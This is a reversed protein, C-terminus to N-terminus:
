TSATVNLIIVHQRTYHHNSMCVNFPRDVIVMGFFNWVFTALQFNWFQEIIVGQQDPVKPGSKDKRSCLLLQGSRWEHDVNETREPGLRRGEKRRPDHPWCRRIRFSVLNLWSFIGFSRLVPFTTSPVMTQASDWYLLPRGIGWKRGFFFSGGVM